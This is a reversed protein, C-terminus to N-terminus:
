KKPHKLAIVEAKKLDFQEQTVLGLDLDTRMEILEFRAIQYLQEPTLKVPTVEEKAVTVTAGVEYKSNLEPVANLRDLEGKVFYKLGDDDQPIVTREITKTGDTFEVTFEIGREVEQKSKIIATFM